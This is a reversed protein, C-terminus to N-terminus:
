TGTEGHRDRQADLRRIEEVRELIEDLLRDRRDMRQGLTNDKSMPTPEGGDLVAEVSGHEWQLADELHRATLASPNRDGRRIGRLGEYSLSAAREVDRWTMDLDLRRRNIAEGLASVREPRAM